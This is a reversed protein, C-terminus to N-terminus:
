SEGCGCRFPHASKRRPFIFLVGCKKSSFFFFTFFITMPLVESPELPTPPPAGTGQRVLSEICTTHCPSMEAGTM